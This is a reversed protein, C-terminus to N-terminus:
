FSWVSAIGITPFIAPASFFIAGAARRSPQTFLSFIVSKYIMSYLAGQLHWFLVDSRCSKEKNAVGQNYLTRPIPRMPAFDSRMQRTIRWDHDRDVRWAERWHLTHLPPDLGICSSSWRHTPDPSVLSKIDSWRSIMWFHTNTNTYKYQLELKHTPQTQSVLRKIDCWRSIM